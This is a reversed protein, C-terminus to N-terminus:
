PRSEEAVVLEMARQIPIRALQKDKDAWGYGTLRAQEEARLKTLLPSVPGLQQEHIKQDATQHFIAVLAEVTVFLVLLLGVGWAALRGNHPQEEEVSFSHHQQESM